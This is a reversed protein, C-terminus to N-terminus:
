SSNFHLNNPNKNEGGAKVKASRKGLYRPAKNKYERYFDGYKHELFSEELLITWHYYPVSLIFLILFILSWFSKSWGMLCLGCFFFFGGVYMPNRSYRYIGTTNVGGIFQAFSHMSILNLIIGIIFLLLGIWFLFGFNLPVFLSVLFITILWVWGILLIKKGHFKYLEPDEIPKGRKRNAWGMSAWIVGYGLVFFLWLNYIGVM